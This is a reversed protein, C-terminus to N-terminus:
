CKSFVVLNIFKSKVPQTNIQCAYEGADTTRVGQIFLNSESPTKKVLRFRTDQTILMDDFALVDGDRLRLWLINYSGLNRVACTLMATHGYVATVNSLRSSQQQQKGFSYESSSKSSPLSGVSAGYDFDPEVEKSSSSGNKEDHRKFSGHRTNHHPRKKSVRVEVRDIWVFLVLLLLVAGYFCKTQTM